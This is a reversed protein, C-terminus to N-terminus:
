SQAIGTTPRAPRTPGPGSRSPRVTPRRGLLAEYVGVYRRVMRSVDYEAAARRAAREGLARAHTPDSLLRDLAAALAAPNGPEVLM